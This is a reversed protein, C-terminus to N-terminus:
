KIEFDTIEIDIKLGMNALEKMEKQLEVLDSLYFCIDSLNSLNNFLPFKTRLKEMKKNIQNVKDNEDIKDVNVNNFNQITKTVKELLLISKSVNSKLQYLNVFKDLNSIIYYAGIKGIKTNIQREILNRQKDCGWANVFENVCKFQNTLEEAVDDPCSLKNLIKHLEAM